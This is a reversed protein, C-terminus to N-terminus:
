PARGHAPLALARRVLAALQEWELLFADHGHPSRLLALEAAVGRCRLRYALRRLQAPFFLQDSDIGVLLASARIRAVGWAGREGPGHRWREAPSPAPPPRALDHQDMADLLALYSRADFRACLKDGQHGLYSRVRQPEELPAGPPRLQQEDLGEEARYSLMAIQRALGLGREPGALRIAERQLHNFGAVWSSSSEAAALCLLRAFREPALAALCLAIMGGLSGGAVLAVEAVGLADLALLLSRAQDWTTLPGEPFGAQTPGSSGYCSGLNNFCLLRHRSPDLPRGPGILPGWWGDAGAARADGTLAHVLLVVPAEVPGLATGRVRHGTLLGGSELRLPPLELVFGSPGGGPQV